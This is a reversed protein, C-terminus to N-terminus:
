LKKKIFDIHDALFQVILPSAMTITLMARRASRQMACEYLHMLLTTCSHPDIDSHAFVPRLLADYESYRQQYESVIQSEAMQEGCHPLSRRLVSLVAQDLTEEKNETQALRLFAYSLVSLAFYTLELKRISNPPAQLTETMLRYLVSQAGVAQNALTTTIDQTPKRKWLGFM